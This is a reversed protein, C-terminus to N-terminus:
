APPRLAFALMLMLIAAIWSAAVRAGIRVWPARHRDLAMSVLGAPVALALNAGFFLGLHIFAGLEFLGHGELGAATLLLGTLLALAAAEARTHRPLLAALCATLVGLGMLLPSVWPGVLAALGVGGALGALFFPWVRPLGERSWLGLLIGLALGPLLLAPYGLVVGTGELFQAYQDAGSKFAHAEGRAASLAALAGILLTKHM